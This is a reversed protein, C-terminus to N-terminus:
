KGLEKKIYAIDTAVNKFEGKMEALVVLIATNVQSQETTVKVLNEKITEDRTRADKDNTIIGEALAKSVQFHYGSVALSLTILSGLIWKVWDKDGAM